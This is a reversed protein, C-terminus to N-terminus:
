AVEENLVNKNIQETITSLPILYEPEIFKLIANGTVISPTVGLTSAIGAMLESAKQQALAIAEYEKFGKGTVSAYSALEFSSASTMSDLMNRWMALEGHVREAEKGGANDQSMKIEKNEINTITDRLKAIYSDKNMIYMETTFRVPSKSLGLLRSIQMSFNMKEEPNMETSSKYIPISVYVTAIYEEGEKRLTSDGTSSLWYAAEETLVIEKKRQKLIPLLMYTYFRSSLALMDFLMALAVLILRLVDGIASPPIAVAAILLAFSLGFFLFFIMMKTQM